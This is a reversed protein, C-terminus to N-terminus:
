GSLREKLAYGMLPWLEQKANEIAICEGIEPDDNASSVACSPKGTVAFGSMTTLVAWRLVQGSQSVHKVIDTGVINAEIDCASVSPAKM